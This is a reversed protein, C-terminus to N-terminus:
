LNLVMEKPYKVSFNLQYIKTAGPPLEEEWTIIGIDEKNTTWPTTEKLLNVEIKKQTSIPYQEKLTIKIKKNQNNKVTLKYAFVQLVDNGLFKTSSFDKLKERKVSIRKDMGLTLALKAQTSAANIQTAGIYAGDYTINAKASMLGLKEWDSIEALLYTEGDLKPACYYQYEAPTEKTQLEITQEKGNGLITYPLDINYVFNLANDTETVYDSVGRSEPEEVEEIMASPKNESKRMMAYATNQLVMSADADNNNATRPEIEQLFWASLLPAQKGNNPSATSLTLKVKEWDLGTTQRVKSKQSIAIPKDISTIYIDYYPTWGAATSYYSIVFTCNVVAPSFLSLKLVGVIKEEEINKQSQLRELRQVIEELQKKQEKLTLLQTEIQESKSKFFDVTKILEDISLGTESNSVNKTIGKQLQELTATNVKIGINIKDLTNLNIKLSDSINKLELEPAKKTKRRDISYESASVIVNGTTKIKLSNVDIMTSLGEIRLENEGKVLAANATHTLEAGRFFVTAEIVKSPIAKDNQSAIPLASLFLTFVALYFKITRMLNQNIPNNKYIHRLHISYISAAAKKLALFVSITQYIRVKTRVQIL